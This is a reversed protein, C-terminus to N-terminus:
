SLCNQGHKRLQCDCTWIRPMQLMQNHSDTQLVGQWYGQMQEWCEDKTNAKPTSTQSQFRNPYQSSIPKTTQTDRTSNSRAADLDQVLAYAKGHKTIERALLETWLDDWLGARFWSFIQSQGETDLANCRILYEDFKKVYEQTLKNDQTYKHGKDIFRASFSPPMYKWRLENKMRRWTDIQEQERAARM